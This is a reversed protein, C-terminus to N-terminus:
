GLAIFWDATTALRSPMEDLCPLGKPLTDGLRNQLWPEFGDPWYGKQFDRRLTQFEEVWDAQSGAQRLRWQLALSLLMAESDDVPLLSGIAMRTRFGFALALLGLPEGLQDETRGLVCCSMLLREAHAIHPLDMASLYRGSDGQVPDNSAPWTPMWLGSRAWNSEPAGGHGIGIVAQVPNSAEVSPPWPVSSVGHPPLRVPQADANEWLECSLRAELAVMPLHASTGDLHEVNLAEDYAVAPRVTPQSSGTVSFKRARVWAALSPYQRVSIPIGEERLRDGLSNAWPLAHADGLPILDIRRLAADDAYARHLVPLLEQPLQWLSRRLAVAREMPDAAAEFHTHDMSAHDRSVARVPGRAASIALRDLEDLRAKWTM